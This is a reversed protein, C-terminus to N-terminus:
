YKEFDGDGLSIKTKASSPAKEISSSNLHELRSNKEKELMGEIMKVMNPNLNQTNMSVTGHKLKFKRVAEKLFKAQSSLEESAAAGEESTASNNQIVQSVQAIASNIQSIGGAQENSAVAIDEVLEAARSVGDVIKSLADATENAIKTGIEVKAISGEILETTEKAANASRAALNRVEEAVVAFGKGHQGARAAEVAANLALINTQFAIEDIVKIIKSINASSNNIEAMAKVMEQMQNNGVVANEKASTALENAQNANIANQKTQAAMQTISATIEEISSSQEAAGQSLAQSSASVQEAGAAVQESATNIDSLIQNNNDVMERLKKGLLDNESRVNVEVTMDGAAIKEAVLAQERINEIMKAFSQMLNGIEDTTTAEINVNVDGLAMKDAIEAMKKVPNAIIQSIFIGLAVSVVMAILAIVIMLMVSQEARAGNSDAVQGAQKIKDDILKSIVEDVKHDAADGEGFLLQKAQDTQGSLALEVVKERVEGLKKGYDMLEDYNKQEEASSITKKFEDLEVYMQKRYEEYKEAYEKAEEGSTLLLNRLNFRTRQFLIGAKGIDGIPKTNKEYLETSHKNLTNIQVVGFIGIIGGIFAVLIFGILLKVAIKLNYFWKM